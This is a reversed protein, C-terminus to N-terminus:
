RNALGDWDGPGVHDVLRDFGDGKPRFIAAEAEQLSIGAADALQPMHGVIVRNSRGPHDSLLGRLAEKYAKRDSSNDDLYGTDFLKNRSVSGRGFALDATEQTRCWQSTLVQGVPIGLRKFADGIARAQDRGEGNLLRQRDCDRFLGPDVTRDDNIWELERDNQNWDTRTHRLYIVHGGGRLAALISTDQTPAPTETPVTPVTPVPEPTDSPKAPVPTDTSTPPAPTRTPEGPRLTKTPRPTRTPKPTRSPKVTRTPTTVADSLSASDVVQLAAATEDAAASLVQSTLTARVEAMATLLSPPAPTESPPGAATAEDASDVAASGAGEDPAGSSPGVAASTVRVLLSRQSGRDAAEDGDGGGCSAVLLVVVSLMVLRHWM